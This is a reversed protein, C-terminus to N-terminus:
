MLPMLALSLASNKGLAEILTGAGSHANQISSALMALRRFGLLARELICAADEAVDGGLHLAEVGALLDFGADDANRRRAM